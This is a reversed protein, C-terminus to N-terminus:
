KSVLKGMDMKIIHDAYNFYHDDHTIAIICKGRQKLSTLLEEYFYKRFLPDQEAAWEDFLYIPRDELYSILLALRKKQGSSLKTTSLIGDEIQLKDNIRLLELLEKIKHQKNKYDIGYLKDFLNYDSFVTSYLQRLGEAHTEIRNVMLKGSDPLYLGTLVKALTSKGSGNGGTIFTVEGSRFSYNIPGIKFSKDEKNKYNYEVDVLELEIQEDLYPQTYDQEEGLEELESILENIRKDSIRVKIIEPISGLIGHIPGTMYLLIFIYTRLANTQIDRFIIPFVFAVVGIIFTFLLEGIVFVKAFSLDGIIRKDRYERCSAKMDKSFSEQRKNHMKLEKFGHTLNEIFNFFINQITRTEEWIRDAYRGVIYYMSTAIIIAVISICLGWINIIGLYIFCCILTVINTLATIVVNAFNSITNTDNNLGAHIKGNDLQEIKEFSAGLIKDILLIRKEYVLNNTINLLKVRVLRQGYVYLVIGLIFFLFLGSQFKEKQNLSENIIFIIAANGFGSVIGLLTIIFYCKDNYLPFLITLMYYLCFLFFTIFVITTAAIISQPAWVEIFGWSLNQYLTDPITYLCYGLLLIFICFGVLYTLWKKYDEYYRRKKKILQIVVKGILYFLSVIMILGLWVVISSINDMSIFLDASGDKPRKGKIISNIGTGIVQTYSSNLNTLIGIGIKEKTEFMLYSSYNPNNGGHAILGEKNQFVAWGCAYSSTDVSPLVTRDPKHSYEILQSYFPDISQTQLQINLWRAIGLTNTIFYGAPTNGRYHPAEYAIPKLYNIKYGTALSQGGLNDNYTYVNYLGLPELINEKIYTEFLTGTVKQIILGLIDYNITAYHYKEGPYYALQQDIQTRVTEELADETSLAPIDDISKFPIGSTHYLLQRLTIDVYDDVSVGQYNGRYKMRFWPLYAQVKKDLDIKGEQELKLIGLATIAKSNSGIEFLTDEKVLDKNAMDAYGYGNSYVVRGDKVIVIAVGPIKGKKMNRKVWTDIRDRQNETLHAQRLQDVDENAKVTIHYALM